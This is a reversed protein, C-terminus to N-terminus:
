FRKSALQGALAATVLQEKMTRLRDLSSQVKSNAQGIKALNSELYAVIEQQEDIPPLPFPFQELFRKPVRQQGVAGTMSGKAEDRFSKQRIFTHLLQSHLLCTPRLVFFETSGYGIGNSLEPVIAAKGNEMCPTIKAFLVDGSRFSTYGKSIQQLKRVEIKEVCGTVDSVAAMPIFALENAQPILTVDAKPPNIHCISGLRVWKWHDPISYPQEEEPVLAEEPINDFDEILPMIKKRVM